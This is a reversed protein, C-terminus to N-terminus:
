NTRDFMLHGAAGTMFLTVVVVIEVISVALGVWVVRRRSRAPAGRLVTWFLVAAIGLPGFPWALSVVMAAGVMIKNPLSLGFNADTLGTTSLDTGMM